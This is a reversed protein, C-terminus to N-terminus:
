LEMKSMSEELRAEDRKDYRQTTSISSHGMALRVTNIDVGSDLLRTAFTRRLDHPTFSEIGFKRSRARLMNYIATQSMPRETHIRDGKLIPVFVNPSGGTGRVAVWDSLFQWVFPPPFVWREKQGKGFVLIRNQRRDIQDLRLGQIEARRLGCGVALAILAADRLGAKTETDKSLCVLNAIETHSLARGRSLSSGRVCKVERVAVYEELPILKKLWAQRMIGRLASLHLNITSPKLGLASLTARYAIVWDYNVLQWPFQAIDRCGLKEGIQAIVFAMSKRSRDTGLSLVYLVAPNLSPSRGPTADLVIDGTQRTVLQTNKRAM